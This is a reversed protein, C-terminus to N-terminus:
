NKILDFNVHVTGKEPVTVQKEEAMLKENWVRLTYNGPPMNDIKFNGEKDTVSFFPNQLVIIYAEMDPHVYCLLVSECGVKEFKRTNSENKPWTGLNFRESCSDPSFVNHLVDDSNLFEVTTGVVVSLFHPLFRLGLQNVVPNEEPPSFIAEVYDIYVVTNEKYKTESIDTNVKGTIQAIGSSVILINIFFFATIFRLNNM